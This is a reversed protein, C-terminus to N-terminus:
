QSLIQGRGILFRRTSPRYDLYSVLIAITSLRYDYRPGLVDHNFKAGFNVALYFLSPHVKGYPNQVAKKAYQLM